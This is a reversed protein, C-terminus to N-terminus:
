EKLDVKRYALIFVTMFLFVNGGIIIFREATFNSRSLDNVLFSIQQTYLIKGMSAVKENFLAVMPLFAPIMAVPMALATAVSQNKSLIGVTSGLLLSAVTGIVMVSVFRILEVGAYGGTVGLAVGGLTCLFVVYSGVGILYEYPKVNSMILMRLSKKEREESIINAMNLLPVMGIYMTAFVNVFYADPLEDSVKAVFETFLFAIVPFMIFQLLTMKNKLTDKVQKKIIAYTRNM